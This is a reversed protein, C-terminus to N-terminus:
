LMSFILLSIFCILFGIVIWVFLKQAFKEAKEGKELLQSLEVSDEEDIIDIIKDESPDYGTLENYIEIAKEFDDQNVWIQIKGIEVPYRSDPLKEKELFCAIGRTKLEDTFYKTEQINICSCLFVLSSDDKNNEM